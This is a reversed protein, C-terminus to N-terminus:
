DYVNFEDRMQTNKFAYRPWLLPRTEPPYGPWEDDHYCRSYKELMNHVEDRAILWQVEDLNYICVDYPPEVEVAVFRYDRYFKGTLETMVYCTLYASWHYRLNYAQFGFFIDRALRCTKLDAIIDAGPVHDPRVKIRIELEHDTWFFSIESGGSTLLLRAEAHEPNELVSDRIRRAADWQEQTVIVQGPRQETLWQNYRNGSRAGSKTLVDVPPVAFDKEVKDPQLIMAHALSGLDFHPKKVEPEQRKTVYYLWSTEGDVLGSKSIAPDEHYIDMDLDFHVGDAIIPKEGPLIRKM